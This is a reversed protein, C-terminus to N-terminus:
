KRGRRRGRQGVGGAPDQVQGRLLRDRRRRQRGLAAAQRGSTVGAECQGRRKLFPRQEQQQQQQRRRAAAACRRALAAAAPGRPPQM